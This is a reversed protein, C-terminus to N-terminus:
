WTAQMGYGPLYNAKEKDTGGAAEPPLWVREGVRILIENPKNWKVAETIKLRVPTACSVSQGMDRGNVYVQTVFQSKLITLMVEADPGGPSITVVKRYWSYKPEYQLKRFDSAEATYSASPKQFLKDLDEIAPEALHILGPVPCKRTYLEPPFADTTQEFDWTGSLSIRTGPDQGTIRFLATLLSILVLLLKKM